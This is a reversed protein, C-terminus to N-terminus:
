YPLNNQQMPVVVPVVAAVEVMVVMLHHVPHIQQAKARTVVKHKVLILLLELGFQQHTEAQVVRLMQIVLVVQDLTVM